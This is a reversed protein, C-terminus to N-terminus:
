VECQLIKFKIGDFRESVLVGSSEGKRDVDTEIFTGNDCELVSIIKNIHLLVKSGGIETVEIFGKM